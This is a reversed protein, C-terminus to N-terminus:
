PSRVQLKIELVAYPFNLCAGPAGMQKSDCCWQGPRWSEYQAENFLQLETDLSM